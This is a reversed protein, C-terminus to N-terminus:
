VPAVMSEMYSYLIEGVEADQCYVSDTKYFKAIKESIKDYVKLINRRVNPRIDPDLTFILDQPREQLETTKRHVFTYVSNGQRVIDAQLVNDTYVIYYKYIVDKPLIKTGLPLSPFHAEIQWEGSTIQRAAANDTFDFLIDSKKGEVPPDTFTVAIKLKNFDNSFVVTDGPEMRLVKNEIGMGRFYPNGYKAISNGLLIVKFEERDRALTSVLNLFLQFEALDAGVYHHSIFEELVLYDMNPYQSAKTKEWTNIAFAYAFPDPHKILKETEEDYRALYWKHSHYWVRDYVGKTLKLIEGNAELASFYTAAVNSGWDDDWRRAIGAVRQGNSKIYHKLIKMATSYSKGASREGFYLYYRIDPDKELESMTDEIDFYKSNAM